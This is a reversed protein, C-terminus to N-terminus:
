GLVLITLLAGALLPPGFAHDLQLRGRRVCTVTAVALAILHGAAAGAVLVSPGYWGLVLGLLAALRIDGFGILRMGAFRTTLFWVSFFVNAFAVAGLAATLLPTWTGEVIAAFVLGAAVAAMTRYVIVRPLRRVKWDIAALLVGGFVFAAMAPTEAGFGLRVVTVAVLCVTLFTLSHATLFARTPSISEVAFTTTM